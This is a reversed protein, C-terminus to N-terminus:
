FWRDGPHRRDVGRHRHNGRKLGDVGQSCLLFGAVFILVVSVFASETRPDTASNLTAIAALALVLIYAAITLVQRAIDHIPTLHRNMSSQSPPWNLRLRSLYVV